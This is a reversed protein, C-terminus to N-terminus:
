FTFLLLKLLIILLLVQSLFITLPLHSSAVWEEESCHAYNIDQIAQIYTNACNIVYQAQVNPITIISVVVVVVVTIVLGKWETSHQLLKVYNNIMQTQGASIFDSGAPQLYWVM